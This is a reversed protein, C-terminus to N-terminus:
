ERMDSLFYRWTTLSHQRLDKLFESKSEENKYLFLGSSVSVLPGEDVGPTVKHIVSGIIDYKERNIWTKEQPDKGKLEPFVNILGPHGNYIDHMDCVDPPIINLYGHLTVLCRTKMNRLAEMLESHKGHLVLPVSAFAPNIPLKTNTLIEDPRWSASLSMLEALETGTQSYLAVWRSNHAM